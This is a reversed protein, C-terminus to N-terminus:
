ASLDIPNLAISNVDSFLEDEGPSPTPRTQIEFPSGKSTGVAALHRGSAISSSM